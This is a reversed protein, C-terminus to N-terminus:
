ILFSHISIYTPTRQFSINNSSNIKYSKTEINKPFNNNSAIKYFIQTDLIQYLINSDNSKGNECHMKCSPQDMENSTICNKDDMNLLCFDNICCCCNLNLYDGNDCINKSNNEQTKITYLLDSTNNNEIKSHSGQHASLLEFNMLILVLFILIYKVNLM